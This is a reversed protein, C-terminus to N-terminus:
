SVKEFFETSDQIRSLHQDLDFALLLHRYYENSNTDSFLTCYLLVEFLKRVTLNQQNHIAEATAQMALPDSVAAKSALELVQACWGLTAAAAKFVENVARFIFFDRPDVATGYKVQESYSDHFGTQIMPFEKCARIRIAACSARGSFEEAPIAQTRQAMLRTYSNDEGKLKM